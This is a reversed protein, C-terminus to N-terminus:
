RLTEAFQNLQEAFKWGVVLGALFSASALYLVPKLNM